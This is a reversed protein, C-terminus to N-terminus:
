TKNSLPGNLFWSVSKYISPDLALINHSLLGRKKSNNEHQIIIITIKNFKVCVYQM